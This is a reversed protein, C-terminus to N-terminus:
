RAGRASVERREVEILRGKRVVLSTVREVAHQGQRMRARVVDLAMGETIPLLAIARFGEDTGALSRKDERILAASEWVWTDDASVFQCRHNARNKAVLGGPCIVFPTEIWPLVGLGDRAFGREFAAELIADQDGCARARRTSEERIAAALELLSDDTLKAVLESSANPDERLLRAITSYQRTAM